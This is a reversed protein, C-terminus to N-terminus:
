LDDDAAESVTCSGDCQRVLLRFCIDQCSRRTVRLLIAKDIRSEDEMSIKHNAQNLTKARERHREPVHLSFSHGESRHPQLEALVILLVVRIIDVGRRVGCRTDVEYSQHDHLDQKCSM